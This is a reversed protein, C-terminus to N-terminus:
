ESLCLATRRDKGQQPLVSVEGYLINGRLPLVVTSLVVKCIQRVFRRWRFFVLSHSQEIRSFFFRVLEQVILLAEAIVSTGGTVYTALAGVWVFVCGLSM